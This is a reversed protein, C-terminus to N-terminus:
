KPKTPNLPLIIMSPTPPYWPNWNTESHKNVPNGQNKRETKVIRKLKWNEKNDNKKMEGNNKGTEKKRWPNKKM